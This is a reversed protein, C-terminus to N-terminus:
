VSTDQLSPSFMVNEKGSPVTETILTVKKRWIGWFFLALAISMFIESDKLLQEPYQSAKSDSCSKPSFFFFPLVLGWAKENLSSADEASLLWSMTKVFRVSAALPFSDTNVPWCDWRRLTNTHCFHQSCDWLMQFYILNIIFQPKPHEDLRVLAM